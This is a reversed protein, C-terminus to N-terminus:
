KMLFVGIGTAVVCCAVSLLLYLTAMGYAKIQLLQIIDTSFASFTTFGGCFGIVLLLQLWRAPHNLLHGVLLGAAFSGIINVLLTKLPFISVNPWLYGTLLQIGYRSVSGLGGGLFVFLLSKM